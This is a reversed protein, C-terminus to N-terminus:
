HVVEDTKSLRLNGPARGVGRVTSIPALLTRGDDQAFRCLERKGGKLMSLADVLYLAEVLDISFAHVGIYAALKAVSDPLKSLLSAPPLNVERLLRTDVLNVDRIKLPTRALHSKAMQRSKSGGELHRETLEQLAHVASLADTRGTGIPDHSLVDKGFSHRRQRRILNQRFAIGIEAIRKEAGSIACLRGIPPLAVDITSTFAQNFEHDCLQVNFNCRKLTM